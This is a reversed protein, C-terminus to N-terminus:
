RSNADTGEIVKGTMDRGVHRQGYFVLADRVIEWKDKQQMTAQRNLENDVWRPLERIRVNATYTEVVTMSSM